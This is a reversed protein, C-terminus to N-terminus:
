DNVWTNGLLQKEVSTTSLGELDTSDWVPTDCNDISGSSAKTYQNTPNAAAIAKTAPVASLLNSAAFLPAPAIDGTAGSASWPVVGTYNANSDSTFQPHGMRSTLEGVLTSQAGSPNGPASPVTFVLGTSFYPYYGNQVNEITPGVGDVAVFRFSDGAATLNASTVEDNLLGIGYQAGATGFNKTYHTGGTVNTSGEQYYSTQLGGAFVHQLCSRMNGGSGAAWVAVGDEAPIIESSAGCRAGLFYAEFSAETGSGYDRRCIYVTNDAPHLGIDSWNYINGSLLSAVDEKSLSPANAAADSPSTLGEAAQLAYYANKTLPVGWLQDLTASSTLGSALTTNLPANATTRLMTAEVDSFGATAVTNTTTSASCSVHNTYASLNGNAGVPATTCSADTLGTTSIFSLGSAGGAHVTYLPVIGNQSGVASEKYIAIQNGSEATGAAGTCLFLRNTYSSATGIYYIDLSNAACIGGPAATELLANAITNDVATSGSLYITVVPAYASIDVASATQAAGAAVGAALALRVAHKIM